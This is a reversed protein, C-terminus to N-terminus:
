AEGGKYNEASAMHSLKLAISRTSADSDEAHEASEFFAVTHAAIIRANPSSERNNLIRMADDKNLTISPM